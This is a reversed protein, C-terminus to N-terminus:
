NYLDFFMVQNIRWNEGTYADHDEIYGGHYIDGKFMVLRNPKAEVVVKEYEGVDHLLNKEEQNVLKKLKPYFATGGSSVKDIYVLANYKWDVHPFHQLNNPIGRRINKYCNFEFDTDTIQIQAKENFFHQIVKGISQIRNHYSEGYYTNGLRIRCDYYDIFNRTGPTHKWRPVSMNSVMRYIDEYNKYFNDIYVVGDQFVPTAGSNTEFLEDYIVPEIM